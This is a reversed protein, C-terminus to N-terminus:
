TLSPGYANKAADQDMSIMAYNVSVKAVPVFSVEFSLLMSTKPDDSIHGYFSYDGNTKLSSAMM